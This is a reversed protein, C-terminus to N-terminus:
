ENSLGSYPGEAAINHGPKRRREFFDTGLMIKDSRRREANRSSAIIALTRWQIGRAAKDRFSFLNPKLFGVIIM